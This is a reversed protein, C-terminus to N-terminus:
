DTEWFPKVRPENSFVQVIYVLCSGLELEGDKQISYMNAPSRDRLRFRFETHIVRFYKCNFCDDPELPIEITSNIAPVAGTFGSEAGNTLDYPRLGGAKIVALFEKENSVTRFVCRTSM